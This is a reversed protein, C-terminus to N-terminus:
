RGVRKKLRADPPVLVSGGSKGRVEGEHKYQRNNGKTSLPMLRMADLTEDYFMYYDEYIEPLSQFERVLEMWASESWYWVCMMERPMSNLALYHRAKHMGRLNEVGDLLSGDALMVPRPVNQSIVDSVRECDVAAYLKATDRNKYHAEWNSGRRNYMEQASIVVSRPM